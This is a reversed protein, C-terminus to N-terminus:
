IADADNSTLIIPRRGVIEYRGKDIRNVQRGDMTELSKSVEVDYPPSDTQIIRRYKTFVLITHANGAEDIADFSGTQKLM